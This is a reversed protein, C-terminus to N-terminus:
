TTWLAWSLFDMCWILLVKLGYQSCVVVSSSCKKPFCGTSVSVETKKTEQHIRQWMYIQSLYFGAWVMHTPEYTEYRRHWLGRHSKTEWMRCTYWELYPGLMCMIPPPNDGLCLDFLFARHSTAESSWEMQPKMNSVEKTVSSFHINARSGRIKMKHEALWMIMFVCEYFCSTLRFIGLPSGCGLDKWIGTLMRQSARNIWM